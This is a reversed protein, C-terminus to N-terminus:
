RVDKHEAIFKEVEELKIKDEYLARGIIVAYIGMDKLKKIDDMSRVGGGAAIYADPYHQQLEQYLEFNPGELLGDRATDTVKLYKLGREYFFDIHEYMDIDAKKQWAKYLVKKNLTDVLLSIKERGYSMLWSAFLDPDNIAATSATFFTAGYELVKNIDGDTRIGGSYDIKLDTHGCLTELTNLNEPGEKKAGDLDAFHLVEIGHNEFLKAIDLPSYDYRLLKSFDGQKLRVVQGEVLSLSPVIKFM